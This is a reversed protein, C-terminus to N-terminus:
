KQSKDKSFNLLRVCCIPIFLFHHSELSSTDKMPNIIGSVFRVSIFANQVTFYWLVMPEAGKSKLFLSLKFAEREYKIPCILLFSLLYGWLCVPLPPPSIAVLLMNSSREHSLTTVILDSARRTSFRQNWAQFHSQIRPFTQGLRRSSEHGPEIGGGSIFWLNQHSIFNRQRNLGFLVYRSRIIRGFHSLRPSDEQNKWTAIRRTAFHDLSTEPKVSCCNISITVLHLRPLVM